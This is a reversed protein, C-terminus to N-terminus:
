VDQGVLDALALHKPRPSYTPVASCNIRQVDSICYGVPLGSDMSERFLPALALRQAIGRRSGKTRHASTATNSLWPKRRLAPNGADCQRRM